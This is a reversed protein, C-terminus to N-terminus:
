SNSATDRFVQILGNVTRIDSASVSEFSVMVGLAAELSLILDIKAMSDLGLETLDQNEMGECILQGSMEQVKEVVTRELTM